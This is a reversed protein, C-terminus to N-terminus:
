VRLLSNVMKKLNKKIVKLPWKITQQLIRLSGSIMANNNCDLCQIILNVIPDMKALTEECKEHNLKDYSLLNKKLLSVLLKIAFTGFLRGCEIQNKKISKGM